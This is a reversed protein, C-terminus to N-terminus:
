EGEEILYNYIDVSLKNVKHRITENEITVYNRTITRIDKLHYTNEGRYVAPDSVILGNEDSGVVAMYHTPMATSGIQVTFYCKNMDFGKKAVTNNIVDSDVDTWSM